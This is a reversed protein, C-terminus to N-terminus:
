QARRRARGIGAMACMPCFGVVGTAAFMLGAAIGGYSWPSLMWAAAAGAAALGLVIRAMQQVGGINKRYIGM